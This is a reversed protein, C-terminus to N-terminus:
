RPRPSFTPPPSVVPRPRAKLQEYQTIQPAVFKILNNLTKVALDDDQRDIAFGAVLMAIAVLPGLGLLSSFSLAAARSLANNEGIGTWTISVIRLM